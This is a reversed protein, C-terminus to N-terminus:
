TIPQKTVQRLKLYFNFYKNLANQLKKLSLKLSTNLYVQRMNESISNLSNETSLFDKATLGCAVGYLWEPCFNSM